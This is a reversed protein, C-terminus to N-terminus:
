QLYEAIKEELSLGFLNKGVIVGREDILYNAPVAHVNFTSFAISSGTKADCVNTWKLKEIKVMGKWHQADTDAAVQYIRLGKRYYKKHLKRLTKNMKLSNVDKSAWFSLLIFKGKLATLKREKGSTDPLKIEPFNTGKTEVLKALALNSLRRQLEKYNALVAKTYEHKPHLARMSSAVIRVYQIDGNENLTYNNNYLKQYLAMYSALSTANKIIFDASFKRQKQIINVYQQQLEKQKAKNKRAQQIATDIQKLERNTSNLKDVLTKVLASGKSGKVTYTSSMQTGDSQVVVQEKPEVLLTIVKGSKFNLLYFQPVTDFVKFEFDGKKNLQISDIKEVNAAHLKQLYLMEDNAHTINGSIEINTKDTCSWILLLPLLYIFRKM